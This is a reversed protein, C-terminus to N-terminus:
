GSSLMLAAVCQPQSREYSITLSEGYPEETKVKPIIIDGSRYDMYLRQKEEDTRVSYGADYVKVKETAQTDDYAIM